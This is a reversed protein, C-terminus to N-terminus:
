LTDDNEVGIDIYKFYSFEVESLIESMEIEAETRSIRKEVSELDENLYNGLGDM